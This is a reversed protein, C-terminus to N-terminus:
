DVMSDAWSAVLWLARQQVWEHAAKRGKMGATKLGSWVAWQVAMLVVWCKVMWAAWRWDESGATREARKAAM